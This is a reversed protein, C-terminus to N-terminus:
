SLFLDHPRANDYVRQRAKAAAQLVGVPDVYDFVRAKTKGPAPRLIRGLYQLLRGSFKVPTALFLTSLRKCDFGEGILQGTAILVGIKGENLRDVIAQREKTPTSGTLIESDIGYDNSLLSQLAECHNKRDSLVLSVGEPQQAEQAVDGAILRNRESDTTLESLMKVYEASPDHFPKFSTQRTVVEAQLIDVNGTLEKQSVTHVSAGLHFYISKTLGDRRYPTASLGLMFKCDFASVIETFIRAPTRHCEDVIIQGIHPSIDGTCRYLTQALGVTIKDGITRKGAGIVGIDWSPIGLFTEIRDRWQNLLEKTHVVVLAPQKRTAIVALAGVTKGSGTPSHLVGFDKRLVNVVAEQQFPKLTGGFTFDVEQLMRRQDDITFTDGCQRALIVVQGTFGRPVILGGNPLSEYFRFYPQTNGNWRGKRNNEEWVPNSLTLRGTIDQRISDYDEFDIKLMNSITLKM